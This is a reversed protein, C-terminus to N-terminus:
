QSHSIQMGSNSYVLSVHFRDERSKIGTCVRLELVKCIYTHMCVNVYATTSAILCLM